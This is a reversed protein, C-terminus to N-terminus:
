HALLDWLRPEIRWGLAEMKDLLVALKRMRFGLDEGLARVSASAPASEATTGYSVYLREIWEPVEGDVTRALEDRPAGFLALKLTAM